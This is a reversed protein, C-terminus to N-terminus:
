KNLENNSIILDLISSSKTVRTPSVIVQKLSTEDQFKSSFPSACSYESMDFNLDGLIIFNFSFDLICYYMFDYLALFNYYSVQPTKYLTAIMLSDESLEAKIVLGDLPNFFSADIIRFKIFNKIYM